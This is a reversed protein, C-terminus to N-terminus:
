EPRFLCPGFVVALNYASMKNISHHAIIGKKLFAMLYILVNLETGAMKKLIEKLFNLDSEAGTSRFGLIDNYISYSFLPVYM